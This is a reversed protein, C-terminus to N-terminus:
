STFVHRLGNRVMRCVPCANNDIYIKESCSFCCCLHSCDGMIQPKNTICVVCTFGEPGIQDEGKPHPLKSVQKRENEYIEILNHWIPLYDLHEEQSNFENRRNDIIGYDGEEEQERQLLCYPTSIIHEEIENSLLPINCYPCLCPPTVIFM